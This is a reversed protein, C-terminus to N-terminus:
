AVGHAVEGVIRQPNAFVEFEAGRGIGVLTIGAAEATRVALTTPASIGVVVPAGIMAAKQVLEVSLRSSLVLIGSAADRGARSLAGALKDLANHRGVDERVLLPQGTQWFGAGHVSRTQLNLLQGTPLAALAAEIAAASVRLDSAIPPVSRNAAAISELGCMGCGAPGLYRRRRDAFADSRSGMLWMRIDVGGAVAAIEIELVEDARTVIGETLSFGIAFDSLDAPTAMMVAHTAGDYTLAVPMEEALVREGHSVSGGSWSDRAVCVFAPLGDSM